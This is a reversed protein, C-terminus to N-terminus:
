CQGCYQGNNEQSPCAGDMRRQALIELCGIQLPKSQRDSTSKLPYGMCVNAAEILHETEYIGKRSAVMARYPSVSLSQGSERGPGWVVYCFSIHEPTSILDMIQEAQWPHMKEVTHGVVHENGSSCWQRKQARLVFPVDQRPLTAHTMQGRPGRSLTGLCAKSVETKTLSICPCVRGVSNNM